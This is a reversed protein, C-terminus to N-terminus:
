YNRVYLDPVEVVGLYSRLMAILNIFGNDLKNKVIYGAVNKAYSQAKDEPSSSTTLMFVIAQASSPEQRLKGLMEIGDMIPMNIDLLVVLRKGAEVLKRLISLGEVGDHARVLPNSLNQKRLAREISMVAVDDDDVLLITVDRESELGRM